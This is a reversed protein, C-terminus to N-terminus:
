LSVAVFGTPDNMAEPTKCVVNSFDSEGGSNYATLRFCAMDGDALQLRYWADYAIAPHDPDFGVTASTLDDIMTMQDAPETNGFYVRYGIVQEEPANPAWSVRLNGGDRCEECGIDVSVGASSTSGSEDTVQYSLLDPGRYQAGPTYEITNDDLVVVSGSVPQQTISVVADGQIGQDNALVDIVITVDADTTASDGNAQLPLPEPPTGGGPEGEGNGGPEEGGPPVEDDIPACAAIGSFLITV